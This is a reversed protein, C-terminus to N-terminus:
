CIQIVLASFFYTQVRYYLFLIGNKKLGEM